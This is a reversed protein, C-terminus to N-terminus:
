ENNRCSVVNEEVVNIVELPYFYVHDGGGKVAICPLEPHNLRIRHRLNYYQYVTVGLAGKFAMLMQSSKRTLFAAEICFNAEEPRLHITTLKLKKLFQQNKIRRFILVKPLQNLTCNNYECLIQILSSKGNNNGEFIPM